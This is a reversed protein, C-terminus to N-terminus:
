LILHLICGGDFAVQEAEECIVTAYFFFGTMARSLPPKEVKEM